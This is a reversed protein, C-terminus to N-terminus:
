EDWDAEAVLELSDEWVGASNSKTPWYCPDESYARDKIIFIYGPKWGAGGRGGNICRVKQGIKFKYGM